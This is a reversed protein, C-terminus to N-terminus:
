EERVLLVGDGESIGNGCRIDARPQEALTHEPPGLRSRPFGFLVGGV